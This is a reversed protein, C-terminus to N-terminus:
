SCINWDSWSIKSSLREEYTEREREGGGGRERERLHLTLQMSIFGMFRFRYLVVFAGAKQGRALATVAIAKSNVLGVKIALRHQVCICFPRLFAEEKKRHLMDGVDIGSLYELINVNFKAGVIHPIDTLSFSLLVKFGQFLFPNETKLHKIGEWKVDLKAGGRGGGVGGGTQKFWHRTVYVTFWM